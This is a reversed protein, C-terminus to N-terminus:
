VNFNKRKRRVNKVFSSLGLFFMESGIKLITQTRINEPFAM